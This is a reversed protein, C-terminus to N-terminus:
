MKEALLDKIVQEMDDATRFGIHKDRINGEKDIIFSTPIANIQGFKRTIDRDGLLVPYDINLNQVFNKVTEAGGEDLSIALIEFGRDKYKDYLQKLEPIMQRCPPCWTAWFDVLVVKGEMENSKVLTGELNPLEFDPAIGMSIFKQDPKTEPITPTKAVTEEVKAKKETQQATTVAPKEAKQEEKKGCGVVYLGFSVAVMVIVFRRMM